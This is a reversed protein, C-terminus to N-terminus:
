KLMVTAKMIWVLLLLTQVLLGVCVSWVGGNIKTTHMEFSPLSKIEASTIEKDQLLRDKVWDLYTKRFRMASDQFALFQKGSTNSITNLGDQLLSAPSLFSAGKALRNAASHKSLYDTYVPEAKQYVHEYFVTAEKSFQNGAFKKNSTDPKGLEPHDFFFKNLTEARGGQEAEGYATRYATIFSVRSPINRSALLNFLSPLIFTALLWCGLLWVANTASSKNYLNVLLSLLSWFLIYLLLLLLFVFLHLPQSLLEIKYLLFLLATEASFFLFIILAPLITKAAIWRQFHQAQVSVIKLTGDEREGSLSNYAFAIILLPLLLILVTAPDLQGFLLQVPNKIDAAILRPDRSRIHLVWERDFLDSQGTALVAFPTQNYIAYRPAARVLQVPNRPDNDYKPFPKIGQVASDMMTQYTAYETQQDLRASDLKAEQVVISAHRYHFAYAYLLGVFVIAIFFWGKKALKKWELGIYQM